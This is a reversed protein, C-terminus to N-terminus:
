ASNKTESHPVFIFSLGFILFLLRLNQPLTLFYHDFLSLFIIMLLLGNLVSGLKTKLNNLFALAFFLMFSFFGFIGTESLVLLFINHVPQLFRSTGILIKDSALINIFNNLGAGFLPHASFLFLAYETLEERRLVALSDYTFVSVLRVFAIPTILIGLIILIKWFRRFALFLYASTLILGTRSFTIFITSSVFLSLLLKFVPKSIKMLYLALPLVVILYGALSNPHSFTAYPRLFIKDYFNFKSILPNEIRLDREGLVWLGLSSGTLFQFVSLLCTFILGIVLAQTLPKKILDFEKSALYLGLLGASIYEKLRVFGALPNISDFLSFLQTIIFLSFVLFFAPNLYLKQKKSFINFLFLAWLSLILLDWFYLVPALYDIRLSYISAFDPWFHKGLQTPLFLITLFFLIREAKQLNKTLISDIL